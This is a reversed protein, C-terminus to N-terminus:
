ISLDVHQITGTTGNERLYIGTQRLMGQTNNQNDAYKFDTQASGLFIAGVGAQGLAILSSNGSDDHQWIQLNNYIPDNEDIWGNKDSDYQSLEAFGNGSQPGFLESGDDISDNNNKDLVLFGSGSDPLSLDEKNGDINIDFSIKRASLTAPTTGLNIVLPDLLADGAKFSINTSSYFSRSMNLKFDLEIERGDATKVMGKASFSVSSQESYSQQYNFNIGWGARAQTQPQVASQSNSDVSGSASDKLDKLKLRFFKMHKGTLMYIFQSLLNQKLDIEDPVDEKSDGTTDSKQVVDTDVTTQYALRKGEDSLDLFIAKAMNGAKGTNPSDSWVKLSTQTSETVEQKSSGKLELNYGSIKM